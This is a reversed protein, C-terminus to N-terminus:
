TTWRALLYRNEQWASAPRIRTELRLVRDNYRAYLRGDREEDDAVMGATSRDLVPRLAHMFMCRGLRRRHERWQDAYTRCSVKPCPSLSLGCAPAFRLTLQPMTRTTCESPSLTEGCGKSAGTLYKPSLRECRNSRYSHHRNNVDQGRQDLYDYREGFGNFHEGSPTLYHDKIKTITSSGDSAWGLNHFSTPDYESTILTTGDGKYVFLRYSSKGDDDIERKSKTVFM